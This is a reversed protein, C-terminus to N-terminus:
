IFVYQTNACHVPAVGVNIICRHRRHWWILMIYQIQQSHISYKWDNISGFAISRFFVAFCLLSFHAYFISLAYFIHTMCCHEHMYYAIHVPISCNSTSSSDSNSSSLWLCDAFEICRSKQGKKKEDEDCKLRNGLSFRVFHIHTCSCLLM